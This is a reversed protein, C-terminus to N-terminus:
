RAREEREMERSASNLSDIAAAVHMAAAPKGTRELNVVMQRLSSHTRKLAEKVIEEVSQM